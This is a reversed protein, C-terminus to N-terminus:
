STEGAAQRNQEALIKQLGAHFQTHSAGEISPEVIEQVKQDASEAQPSWKL